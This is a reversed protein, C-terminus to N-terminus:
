PTVGQPWRYRVTYTLRADGGAPVPVDFRTHRADVKQAPISSGTIEWDTWRPLPEVVRVTADGAKANRLTIAFSETITRGARDVDFNITERQASLEFATGVELRVEEGQATHGIRSEGLFDDGDFLRVRGEPLPQGLGAAGANEMSVAVTVPIDGTSGHFSPDLMPQPPQWDQSGADVMYARECAVSPQRPFLPVREIAGDALRVPAPLRYARYESSASQEPMAAQASDAAMYGGSGRERRFQAAPRVRRPEGAVLTLQAGPFSQGSRNAVLAAGELSLQCADGPTLRALYEARWALGAMPYSLVFSAAGGSPAQVNWWLSPQHPPMSSSDIISFSDYSRILKVRGDGLALALGEDASILTGSDTQRAGGSTHEVAVRRGVAQAVVDQTGTLAPTYRQGTVTVDSREARLMAAEVDMTPPVSAAVANGGATLAYTLPRQVLAYGPMGRGNEGTQALEAYDGSYITLEVAAPARANAGSAKTTPDPAQVPTQVVVAEGPAPSPSCAVLLCAVILVTSPRHM